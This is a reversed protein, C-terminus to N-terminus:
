AWSEWGPRVLTKITPASKAASLLALDPLQEAPAANEGANRGDPRQFPNSDGSAPQHTHNLPALRIGRTELQQQLESWHRSLLDYDGRHLTATMDVTGDHMQLHLALQTGLGPKIVVQLSDAGTERLRYAHLAMMDQTREISRLSVVDPTESVLTDSASKLPDAAGPMSSGPAKSLESADQRPMFRIRIPRPLEVPLGTGGNDAPAAPLKQEALATIEDTKEAKKM